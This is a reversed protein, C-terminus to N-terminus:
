RSLTWTDVAYKSAALQNVEDVPLAAADIRGDVDFGCALQKRLLEKDVGLNCVFDAHSRQSRYDPERPPHKLLQDIGSLEMDVLITGHYLLWNRRLRLSNGSFKYNEITLDCIGRYEVRPELPRIAKVLMQMVFRHAADIMRLEPRKELSLLLTYFECGKGALVTGGGSSRRLLPVGDRKLRDAFVEDSVKGSRGMVVFQTSATWLRLVESNLEGREAMNLLTEDLALDHQPSPMTKDLLLM